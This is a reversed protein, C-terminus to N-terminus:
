LKKKLKLLESIKTKQKLTIILLFNLVPYITYCLEYVQWACKKLFQIACHYFIALNWFSNENEHMFDSDMLKKWVTKTCKEKKKSSPSFILFGRVSASKVLIVKMGNDMWWLPKLLLLFLQSIQIKIISAARTNM